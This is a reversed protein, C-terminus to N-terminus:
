LLDDLFDPSIEEGQRIRELGKVKANERIEEPLQAVLMPLLLLKLRNEGSTKTAAAAIVDVDQNFIATWLKLRFELEAASTTNSLQSNITNLVIIHGLLTIFEFMTTDEELISRDDKMRNGREESEVLNLDAEKFENMIALAVDEGLEKELVEYFESANNLADSIVAAIVHPMAEPKPVYVTDFTDPADKRLKEVGSGLGVLKNKFFLRSAFEVLAKKRDM